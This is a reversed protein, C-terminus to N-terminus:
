ERYRLNLARSIDQRLKPWSGGSSTRSLYIKVQDNVGLYEILEPFQPGPSSNFPIKKRIGPYSAQMVIVTTGEAAHMEDAKSYLMINSPLYISIAYGGYGSEEYGGPCSSNRLSLQWEAPMVQVIRALTTGLVRRSPRKLDSGAFAVLFFSAGILAVLKARGKMM